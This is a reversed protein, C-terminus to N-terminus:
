APIETDAITYHRPTKDAYQTKLRAMVAQVEGYARRMDVSPPRDDTLKGAAEADLLIAACAMVNGLHHTGDTPDHLEGSVYAAIHRKMASVYVSARVGAIRWNASGYKIQGAFQAASWHAEAIPLCLALPVKSDGIADKPNSAKVDQRREPIVRHQESQRKVEPLMGQMKQLLQSRMRAQEEPTPEEVPPPCIKHQPTHFMM